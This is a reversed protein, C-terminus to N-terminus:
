RRPAAAYAPAFSEAQNVDGRGKYKAYTPYPYLPRSFSAEAGHGVHEGIISSPPKSREVWGEIASLWDVDLAGVGGSCHNMGPILFLRFFDQTSKRGGMTREVTEYYDIVPRPPDVTDTGGHYVILKGGAAKFRRLDPNSNDYYTAFGFRKYDRDFDFESAKYDPGTTFGPYGYRFYDVLSDLPWENKWGLESGILFSGTSTPRGEGDTPGAYIKRAAEVQPDTLCGTAQETRCRLSAPRFRCALPNGIIGDKVGDDLDCLALAAAHLLALEKDGLLLAGNADRKARAFWLARFNAQTQDIDPAGAVIGDFDWPFRQAAMVGEYGGTSCGIFYARGPPRGYYSAAIAKGAVAAVHVGRYGFDIQAQLNGQAWKADTPTGKHGTDTAVCAYGRRLAPTCAQRFIMGCWGGCGVEVFKGNWDGAPLRLEVGVHPEIEGMVKCFEPDSGSPAVLQASTVHSHADDIHAFDRTSLAACRSAADAAPALAAARSALPAFLILCSLAAIAAGASRAM